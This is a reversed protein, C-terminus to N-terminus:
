VAISVFFPPPRPPPPAPLPPPPPPPPPPVIKPTKGSKQLYNNEPRSISIHDSVAETLGSFPSKPSTRTAPSPPTLETGFFNNLRCRPGILSKPGNGQYKSPPRMKPLAAEVEWSWAGGAHSTRQNQPRFINQTMKPGGMGSGVETPRFGAFDESRLGPRPPGYRGPM